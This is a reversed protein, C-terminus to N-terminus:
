RRTVLRLKLSDTLHADEDDIGARAAQLQRDEVVVSQHRRLAQGRRAAAGLLLRHALRHPPEPCDVRDPVPDDVAAVLEDPRHADVGADEPPEVRERVECREVLRLREAGELEDVPDQGSTGATAQKSVANWAPM